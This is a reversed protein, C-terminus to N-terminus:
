DEEEDELQAVGDNKSGRNCSEAPTLLLYQGKPFGSSGDRINAADEVVVYHDGAGLM